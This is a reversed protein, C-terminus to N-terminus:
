RPRLAILLLNSTWGGLRAGEVRAGAIGANTCRAPPWRRIRCQASLRATRTRPGDQRRPLVPRRTRIPSGAAAPPVVVRVVANQQTWRQRAGTADEEQAYWDEGLFLFARDQPQAPVTYVTLDGVPAGFTARMSPWATGLMGDAVFAGRPDFAPTRNVPGAYWAAVAFGEFGLASRALIM